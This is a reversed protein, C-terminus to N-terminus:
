FSDTRLISVFNPGAKKPSQARFNELPIRPTSKSRSNRGPSLIPNQNISRAYRRDESDGNRFSPM